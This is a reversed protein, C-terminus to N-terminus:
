EEYFEACNIHYKIGPNSIFSIKSEETRLFLRRFDVLNRFHHDVLFTM